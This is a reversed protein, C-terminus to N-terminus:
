KPQRGRKQRSEKENGNPNINFTDAYREVTMGDLSIIEAEKSMINTSHPGNTLTLRYGNETQTYSTIVFEPCISKYEKPLNLKLISGKPVIKKELLKDFLSM